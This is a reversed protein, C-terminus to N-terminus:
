MHCLMLIITFGSVPNERFWQHALLLWVKCFLTKEMQSITEFKGAEKQAGCFELLSSIPDDCNQKVMDM